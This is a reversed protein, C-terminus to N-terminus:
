APAARPQNPQTTVAQTFSGSPLAASSQGPPCALEGVAPDKPAPLHRLTGWFSPAKEGPEQRGGPSQQEPLSGAPSPAPQHPALPSPSPSSRDSGEM